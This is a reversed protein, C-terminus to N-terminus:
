RTLEESLGILDKLRAVAERRSVSMLRRSSQRWPIDVLDLM